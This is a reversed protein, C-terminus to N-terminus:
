SAIRLFAAGAGKRWCASARAVNSGPMYSTTSDYEGSFHIIMRCEHEAKRCSPMSARSGRCVRPVSPLTWARERHWPGM